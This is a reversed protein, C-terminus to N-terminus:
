SDGQFWCDPVMLIYREMAERFRNKYQRPTVVTPEKNSGGVLGREKVWSELKKDWTYTRLCDIIGVMLEGRDESIAVVLSYDMVNMKALFLTDNWLSTRLYKKAHERIFLPSEYIYEVMNEDMLVENAKGTQQVHRNRMSGKLDFYRDAPRDYWLNELVLVDLKSVKGTVSNRIQIQYFGLIKSIVTPLDHFYAQAMYDFYSPAFNLFSDLEVQSLQKIIFRDDLTKLFASGSKGGSSEWKACRSLSQVFSRRDCGCITRFADFQEAYFIRCSLKASGEEFYYKLHTGTEKLLAGKLGGFYDQVEDASASQLKEKPWFMDQVKSNYDESAICFAILSTPEEERVIVESDMFVHDSINLPYYLSKWGTASRDAWFNALTKMISTREASTTNETQEAAEQVARTVRDGEVSQPISGASHRKRTTDDTNFLESGEDMAEEANEFVQVIPRTKQIPIVKSRRDAMIIREMKRRREFEESIQDFHKTLSSVKNSRLKKSSSTGPQETKGNKMDLTAISNSSKRASSVQSDLSRNVAHYTGPAFPSVSASRNQEARAALKDTSGGFHRALRQVTHPETDGTNSREPSSLHPASETRVPGTPRLTIDKRNDVRENVVPQVKDDKENFDNSGKSDKSIGDSNTSSADKDTFLKKLQQATIRAIDKDSPLFLNEFDSFETDWIVVKEQLVKLVYNLSLYDCENSEDFTSQLLALMEESEANCRSIYNELAAQAENAKESPLSTVKIDNLRQLCSAYYSKIRERIEIASSVKISSNTEVKWRIQLRPIVLDLLEIHNYSVIVCCGKYQFYREHDKFLNHHCTTGRPTVEPAWFSLELYKGFSYKWTYQSMLSPPTTIQCVKCKSWMLIKNDLGPLLCQKPTVDIQVRGNGNVYSRLHKHLPLNCGESCISFATTCIYEVYQGLCIDTSRYFDLQLMDPGLCPTSTIFNVLSYLITISQRTFIDLLNPSQSFTHEWIKKRLSGQNLVAERAENVTAMRFKAMFKESVIGGVKSSFSSIASFQSEQDSETVSSRVLAADAERARKLQYPIPFSVSPSISIIRTLVIDIFEDFYDTGTVIDTWKQHYKFWDFENPMTAFTDLFYSYELKLHFAVYLMFDTVAKIHALVEASEGRLVITGGQETDNGRFLCYSKKLTGQLYTHVSFDECRGLKCPVSLRDLSPIVDCGLYRASFEIVSDKVNHIVTVGSQQFRKLAMGCVTKSVVIVNAGLALIRDVLLEIYADEQKPDLSLITTATGKTYEIPFTILAITPRTISRNMTKMAVNKSFVIGPFFRSHAPSGGSVKKIKVYNRVDLDNGSVIFPSLRLVAAFVSNTLPTEWSQGDAIRAFSLLQLLLAAFFTKSFQDCIALPKSTECSKHFTFKRLSNLQDAEEILSTSIDVPYRYTPQKLGLLQPRSVSSVQGSHLSRRRQKIEKPAEFSRVTQSRNRTTRQIPLTLSSLPRTSSPSQSSISSSHNANSIAFLQRITSSTSDYIQQIHGESKESSRMGQSFQDDDADSYIAELDDDQPLALFPVSVSQSNLSHRTRQAAPMPSSDRSLSDQQTSPILSPQNVSNNFSVFKDDIDSTSDEASEEDDIDSSDSDLSYKDVMRACSKCARLFGSAGLREGSIHVTCSSCFIQGCIRCHHRRRWATFPRSCIFCSSANEDKMWFARSLQRRSIVPPPTM